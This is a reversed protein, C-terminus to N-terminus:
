FTGKCVERWTRKTSGKVATVFLWYWGTETKGSVGQSLSYVQLGGINDPLNVKYTGAPSEVGSLNTGNKMGVYILESGTFKEAVYTATIVIENTGSTADVAYEGDYNLTGCLRIYDSSTLGHATCPIGVKGGGKNVADDDATPSKTTTIFLSATVTAGTIAAGDPDKPSVSAQNDSNIYLDLSM